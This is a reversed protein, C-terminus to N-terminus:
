GRLQMACLRTDYSPDDRVKPVHVPGNIWMRLRDQAAKPLIGVASRVSHDLKELLPDQRLVRRVSGSGLHRATNVVSLRPKGKSMQMSRAHASSMTPLVIRGDALPMLAEALDLWTTEEDDTVFIRSGDAQECVLAQTIAKALNQVDVLNCATRGGDVLVLKCERIASLVSLLFFSQAGSINPPCLVVCPLGRRCAALV